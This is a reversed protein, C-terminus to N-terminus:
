DLACCEGKPIRTIRWYGLAVSFSTVVFIIPKTFGLFSSGFLGMYVIAMPSGCCGILFCGFSYLAASLSIGGFVGYIGKNRNFKVRSVAFITFAVALAYSL